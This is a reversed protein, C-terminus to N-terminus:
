NEEKKEEKKEMDYELRSYGYDSTKSNFVNGMEVDDLKLNFYNNFGLSEATHPQVPPSLDLDDLSPYISRINKLDL